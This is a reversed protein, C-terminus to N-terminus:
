IFAIWTDDTQVGRITSVSFDQPILCRQLFRTERWLRSSERQVVVWVWIRQALQWFLLFIAVTSLWWLVPNGFDHVDYIVKADGAPLLPGMVPIPETVSQARQYLLGSTSDDLALYVLSFLLSASQVMVLAKTTIWFGSKCQWFGPTPNLQLHSDM